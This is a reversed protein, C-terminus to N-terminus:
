HSGGGKFLIGMLGGTFLAFVVALIGYILRHNTALDEVVRAFGVEDITLRHSQVVSKKGRSITTAKISYQGASTSRPFHYAAKFQKYGNDASMYTVASEKEAYLGQDRKLELFMDFLKDQPLANSKITIKRKMMELGLGLALAKQKWDPGDPLLLFYMAPAGEFEAKDRTMWFPGLRGKIDFQNSAAPGAIEIIVDQGDPVKGSIVIQDGSYFTGIDLVEPQITLEDSQVAWANSSFYLACGFCMSLLLSTIRRMIDIGEM